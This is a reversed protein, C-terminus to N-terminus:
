QAIVPVRISLRKLSKNFTCEMDEDDVYQPLEIRLFYVGTVELELFRMHEIVASINSASPVLPLEVEVRIWGEEEDDDKAPDVAVLYTPTVGKSKEIEPAKKADEERKGDESKKGDKRVIGGDCDCAKTMERSCGNGIVLYEKYM